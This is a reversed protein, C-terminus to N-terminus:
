WPGTILLLVMTIIGLGIGFLNQRIHNLYIRKMTPSVSKDYNRKAEATLAAASFIMFIVFSGLFTMDNAQYTEMMQSPAFIHAIGICGFSIAIIYLIITLAKM